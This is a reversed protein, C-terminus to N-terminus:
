QGYIHAQIDVVKGANNHVLKVHTGAEQTAWDIAVQRLADSGSILYKRMDELIAVFDDEKPTIIEAVSTLRHAKKSTNRKQVEAKLAEMAQKVEEPTASSKKSVTNSPQLDDWIDRDEQTATNIIYASSNEALRGQEDTPASKTSIAPIAYSASSAVIQTPTLTETVSMEESIPLAARAMPAIAQECASTDFGNERRVQINAVKHIFVSQYWEWEIPLNTPENRFHKLVKARKEHLDGGHEKLWRQALATQFNTDLKREETRWPGVPLWDWAIEQPKSRRNFFPDLPVASFHYLERRSAEGVGSLSNQGASKVDQHTIENLVTSKKEDLLTPSNLGNEISTLFNKGEESRESFTELNKNTQITQFDKDESAKDLLPESTKFNGSHPTESGSHPTDGVIPFQSGSHPTRWCFFIESSEWELILKKKLEAISRYFKSESIQWRRCFEGAAIKFPRDCWPNEFRLCLHVYFPGRALESERLALLEARQLPYFEGKIKGNNDRQPKPIPVISTNM